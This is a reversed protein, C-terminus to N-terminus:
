VKKGKEDCETKSFTNSAKIVMTVSQIDNHTQRGNGAQLKDLVSSSTQKSTCPLSLVDGGHQGREM